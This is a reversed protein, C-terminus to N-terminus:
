HQKKISANVVGFIALIYIIDPINNDLLNQFNGANILNHLSYAFLFTMYWLCISFVANLVRILIRSDKKIKLNWGYALILMLSIVAVNLIIM